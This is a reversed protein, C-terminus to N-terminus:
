HQSILKLDAASVEFLDLLQRREDSVEILKSEGHDAVVTAKTGVPWRGVARLLEVDDDHEALKSEAEALLSLNAESRDILKLNRAFTGILDLM